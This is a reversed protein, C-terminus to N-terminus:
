HLLHNFSHHTRPLKAQSFCFLRSGPLPEPCEPIKMGGQPYQLCEEPAFYSDTSM